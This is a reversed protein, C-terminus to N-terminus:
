AVPSETHIPQASWTGGAELVLRLDHQAALADDPAFTVVTISREALLGLLRAAADTGLLTGPGDLM